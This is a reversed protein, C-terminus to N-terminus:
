YLFFHLFSLSSYVITRIISDHPRSPFLVFLDWAPGAHVIIIAQYNRERVCGDLWASSIGDLIQDARVLQRVTPITARCSTKGRVGRESRPPDQIFNVTGTTGRKREFISSALGTSSIRGQVTHKSPKRGVQLPPRDCHHSAVSSTERRVLRSRISRGTQRASLSDRSVLVFRGPRM